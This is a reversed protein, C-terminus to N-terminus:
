GLPFFEGRRVGFVMFIEWQESSSNIPELYEAQKRGSKGWNKGRVGGSFVAGFWGERGAM